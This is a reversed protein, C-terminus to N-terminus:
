QKAQKAKKSITYGIREGRQWHTKRYKGIEDRLLPLWEQLRAQQACIVDPSLRLTSRVCKYVFSGYLVKKVYDLAANRAASNQKQREQRIHLDWFPPGPRSPQQQEQVRELEIFLAELEDKTTEDLGAVDNLACERSLVANIADELETFSMHELTSAGTSFDTGMSIDLAHVSM